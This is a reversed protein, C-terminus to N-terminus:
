EPIVYQEPKGAYRQATLIKSIQRASTLSVGGTTATSSGGANPQYGGNNGDGTYGTAGGGGYGGGYSSSSVSDDKKFCPCYFYCLIGAIIAVVGTGIAVKKGTSMKKAM